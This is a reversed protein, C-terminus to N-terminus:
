LLLSFDQTMFYVAAGMGAMGVLIGVLFGCIRDGWIGGSGDDDEEDETEEDEAEAEEADDKEDHAAFLLSSVLLGLSSALPIIWALNWASIM